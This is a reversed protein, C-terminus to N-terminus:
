PSAGEVLHMAAWKGLAELIPRLERAAPTASYRTAPPTTSLVARNILGLAELRDLRKALTDPSIGRLFRCLQNFGMPKWLIASVVRLTWKEEVLTLVAQNM